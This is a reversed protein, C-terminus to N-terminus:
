RLNFLIPLVNKNYKYIFRSNKVPNNPVSNENYDKLDELSIFRYDKDTREEGNLFSKNLTIDIYYVHSEKEYLYPGGIYHENFDDLSQSFEKNFYEKASNRDFSEIDSITILNLKNNKDKKFLIQESTNDGDELKTKIVLIYNKINIRLRNFIYLALLLILSVLLFSGNTIYRESDFFEKGITNKWILGALIILPIPWFSFLSKLTFLNDFSYWNVEPTYDKINIDPIYNEYSTYDGELYEDTKKTPPM